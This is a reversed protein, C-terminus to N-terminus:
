HSESGFDMGPMEVAHHGWNHAAHRMALYVPVDIWSAETERAEVLNPKWTMRSDSFMSLGVMYDESPGGYFEFSEAEVDYCMRRFRCSRTVWNHGTCSAASSSPSRAPRRPPLPASPPHWGTSRCRM